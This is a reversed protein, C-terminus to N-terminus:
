VCYRVCGYMMGAITQLTCAALDRKKTAYVVYMPDTRTTPTIDACKPAGWGSEVSYHFYSGVIWVHDADGTSTWIQIAKTPFCRNSFSMYATGGPKLVRHMERFVELPKNLYDVSVANTVVDFTNDPYPLRPDANLDRVVWETLQTNRKLEDENMGLGAVKGATYGQPYHSIWSSCIDLLATDTRGSEPFNQGYFRTLANIAHEDIHAVYRPQSYFVTDPQEDYRQFDAPRFPWKAPFKPDDLVKEIESFSTAAVAPGSRGTSLLSTGAMMGGLM